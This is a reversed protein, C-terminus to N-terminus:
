RVLALSRAVSHACRSARNNAMRKHARLLGSSAQRFSNPDASPPPARMQQAPLVLRAIRKCVYVCVCVCVCKFACQQSQAQRAPARACGSRPCILNEGALALVRATTGNARGTLWASSECTASALLRAFKNLKVRTELSPTSLSGTLHDMSANRLRVVLVVLPAVPAISCCCCCCCCFCVRSLARDRKTVRECWGRIRRECLSEELSLSRACVCVSSLLPM